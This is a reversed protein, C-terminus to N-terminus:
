NQYCMDANPWAVHLLNLISGRDGEYYHPEPCLPISPVGLVSFLSSAFQVVGFQVHAREDAVYLNGVVNGQSVAQGESVTINNLQTAGDM